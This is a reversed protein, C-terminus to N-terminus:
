KSFGSGFNKDRHPNKFNVRHRWWFNAWPNRLAAQFYRVYGVAIGLQFNGCSSSGRYSSPHTVMWTNFHFSYSCISYFGLLPSVSCGLCVTGFGPVFFFFVVQVHRPSHGCSLGSGLSAEWPSGSWGRDGIGPLIFLLGYISHVNYLLSFHNQPSQYSPVSANQLLTM